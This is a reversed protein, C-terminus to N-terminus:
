PVFVGQQQFLTNGQTTSAVGDPGGDFLEVDGLQWITRASERVTGPQIADASTAVSCTSGITAGATTQCPVKFTYVFDQVTAPENVALGSARDTLRLKVNAQLEGTYDGLGAKLRVDTASAAIRVDAEDATTAPNGTVATLVISGVSNAAAGNADPTGVTLFGSSQVPPACSPHALPAGHTRNAGLCPKFAPVLSVRTPTAGRPRPYGAGTAAAGDVAVGFPSTIPGTVFQQDVGSGDLNARGIADDDFGTPGPFNNAWYIHAADVAVGTPQNGGSIFAQNVGTGDLNARGVTGSDVNTWYIHVADLALGSPIRASILRQNVGSGDLNARGISGDRAFGSNAWYIHAGDVAVAIPADAGTIFSQNVQTGDLNARGITNNDNNGWYIHAGDAAVGCPSTAGAIFSQNVQTGDLNARGIRGNELNTWYLHAADVAVGCVSPSGGRVFTTNLGSGDLGARAVSTGAGGDDFNAWYVFAGARPAFALMLITAAAISIALASSFATPRPRHTTRRV